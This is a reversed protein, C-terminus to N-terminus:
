RRGTWLELANWSFDRQWDAPVVGADRFARIVGNTYNYLSDVITNFDLFWWAEPTEQHSPDAWTDSYHFDLMLELGADQCRVAFALVSDLGHWPEDPTHWLRLRVTNYGKEAFLVVPDVALGNDEYIAGNSELKPVFSLDAGIMYMEQAMLAPCLVIFVITFLISLRM